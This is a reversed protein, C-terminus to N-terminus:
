RRLNELLEIIRALKRDISILASGLAFILGALIVFQWKDM